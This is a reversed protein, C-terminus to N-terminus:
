PPMAGKTIAPPHRLCQREHRRGGVLRGMYQFVISPGGASDLAQFRAGDGLSLRRVTSLFALYATILSLQGDYGSNKQLIWTMDGYIDSKRATMEDMNGKNEYV